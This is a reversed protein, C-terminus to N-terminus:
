IIDFVHLKGDALEATYADIISNTTFIKDVPSNSLLLDGKFISLEAHAIFLYVELAGLNKLEAGSMMFTGGYSCLDDLILVKSGAIWEGGIVQLSNIKGTAFDRQKYGVATKFGELKSYRKQAGADPFFLYDVRKNFGILELVDDLYDITPYEAIVNNLLATTVDSHPELVVVEEFRMENIFDCVFKLTFASKGEVRDMRSYPMYLIKLSLQTNALFKRVFMLKILDSDDEYKLVVDQWNAGTISNSIQKADVLTEGNPFTKFELKRGNLYIMM